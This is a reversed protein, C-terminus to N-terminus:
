GYRVISGCRYDNTYLNTEWTKDELFENDSSRIMRYRLFQRSLM